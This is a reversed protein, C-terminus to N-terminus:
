RLSRLKSIVDQMDDQNWEGMWGEKAETRIVSPERAHKHGGRAVRVQSNVAVLTDMFPTDPRFEMPPTAPASPHVYHDHVSAYSETRAHQHASPEHWTRQPPLPGVPTIPEDGSAWEDADAESAASGDYPAFVAVSAAADPGNYPAFVAVSPPRFEMPSLLTSERQTHSNDAFCADDFSDNESTSFSRDEWSSSADSTSSTESRPPIRFTGSFDSVIVDNRDPYSDSPPSPLAKGLLRAAKESLRPVVEIDDVPHVNAQHLPRPPPPTYYSPRPNSPGAIQTPDNTSSPPAATSGTSGKRRLSLFSPVSPRRQFGPAPPASSGFLSASRAPRTVPNPHAEPQSSSPKNKSKKDLKILPKPADVSSVETEASSVLGRVVEIAHADSVSHLVVNFISLTQLLEHPSSVSMSPSMLYTYICYRHSSLFNCRTESMGSSFIVQITAGLCQKGSRSVGIKSRHNVRNSVSDMPLSRPGAGGFGIEMPIQASERCQYGPLKKALLVLEPSGRPAPWAWEKKETIRVVSKAVGRPWRIQARFAITADVQEGPM